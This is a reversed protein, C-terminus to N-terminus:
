VSKVFATIIREGMKAMIYSFFIFVSIFFYMGGFYTSKSLGKNFM